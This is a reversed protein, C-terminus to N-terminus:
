DSHGDKEGELEFEEWDYLPKFEDRYWYYKDKNEQRKLNKYYGNHVCVRCHEVLFRLGEKELTEPKYNLHYYKCFVCKRQHPNQLLRKIFELKTERKKLHEM